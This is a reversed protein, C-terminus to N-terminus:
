AREIMCLMQELEQERKVTFKALGDVFANLDNTQQINIEASQHVVLVVEAPYVRLEKLISKELRSCEKEIYLKNRLHLRQEFHKSNLQLCM